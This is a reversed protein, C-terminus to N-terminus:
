PVVKVKIIYTRLLQAPMSRDWVKLKVYYTRGVGSYVTTYTSTERAVEAYTTEGPSQLEWLYNLADDYRHTGSIRAVSTNEFESAALMYGKNDPAEKIFDESLSADTNSPSTQTAATGTAPKNAESNNESSPGCGFSIITTLILLAIVVYKKVKM